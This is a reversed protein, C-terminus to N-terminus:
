VVKSSNPMAGNTKCFHHYRPLKILNNDLPSQICQLTTTVLLGLLCATGTGHISYLIIPIYLLHLGLPTFDIVDYCPQRRDSHNMVADMEVQAQPKLTLRSQSPLMGDLGRGFWNAGFSIGEFLHGFGIHMCPSYWRNPPMFIFIFCTLPFLEFSLRYPIRFLSRRNVRSAEPKYSPDHSWSSFSQLSPFHYPFPPFQFHFSFDELAFFSLSFLGDSLIPWAM